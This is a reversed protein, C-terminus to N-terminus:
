SVHRVEGNINTDAAPPLSVAGGVTPTTEGGGADHTGAAYPRVSPRSTRRMEPM